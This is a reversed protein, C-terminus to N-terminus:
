QPRRVVCQRKRFYCPGVHGEADATLAVYVPGSAAVILPAAMLIAIMCTLLRMKTKM